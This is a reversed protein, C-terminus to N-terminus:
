QLPPPDDGDADGAVAATSAAASTSGPLQQSAVVAAAVKAKRTLAAARPSGVVQVTSWAFADTQMQAVLVRLEMVALNTPVDERRRGSAVWAAVLDAQAFFIPMVTSSSLEDCCFTPVVWSGSELGQSEVQQRLAAGMGAEVGSNCQVRMEGVFVSEVWGVAFAFALGLPTVGLHLTAAVEVNQEKASALMMEAEDADTFWTTVESGELGKPDEAAVINSDGNLICFTPVANLKSIIEARALARAPPTTTSSAKPKEPTSSSKEAAATAKAVAKNEAIAADLLQDDTLETAKKKKEKKPMEPQQVSTRHEASRLHALIHRAEGRLNECRARKRRETTHKHTAKTHPQPLPPAAGARSV